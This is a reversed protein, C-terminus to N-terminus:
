LVAEKNKNIVIMENRGADYVHTEQINYRARIRSALSIIGSREGFRICVPQPDQGFFLVFHQEKKACEDMRIRALRYRSASYAGVPRITRIDFGEQKM